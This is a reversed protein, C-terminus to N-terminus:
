SWVKGLLKMKKQGGPYDQWRRIGAALAHRYCFTDCEGCDIKGDCHECITDNLNACVFWGDGDPNIPKGCKRCTPQRM